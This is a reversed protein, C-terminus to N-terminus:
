GNALAPQLGEFADAWSTGNSTGTAAQNVYWVQQACIITSHACLLLILYNKM